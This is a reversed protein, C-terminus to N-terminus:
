AAGLGRRVMRRAVPAAVLVVPFAVAWATIWAGPWLSMWTAGAARFTAIGSVVLSMLGSLVFGFLVPELRARNM